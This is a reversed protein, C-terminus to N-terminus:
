FLTLVGHRAVLTRPAPRTDLAPHPKLEVVFYIAQSSSVPDPRLLDVLRHSTDGVRGLGLSLRPLSVWQM